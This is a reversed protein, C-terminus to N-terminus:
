MLPSRRRRQARGQKHMVRMVRVGRTTGAARKLRRLVLERGHATTFPMSGVHSKIPDSLKELL